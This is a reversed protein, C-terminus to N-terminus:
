PNQKVIESWVKKGNKNIYFLEYFGTYRKDESYIFRRGKSLGNVFGGYDVHKDFPIKIDGKKDIFGEIFYSGLMYGKEEIKLSVPALGESFDSFVYYKPEIVIAGTTDIFGWKEDIEVAAMGDSFKQARDFEKENIKNGHKNIFFCKDNEHVIAFGESFDSANTYDLTSIYSGLTNMFHIKGDKEITSIGDIFPTAEDLNPQVVWKGDKNIFGYYWDGPYLNGDYVVDSEGTDIDKHGINQIRVIALGDSFSYIASLQKGKPMELNKLDIAIEGKTTLYYFHGHDEVNLLGESFQAWQKNSNIVIEGNENLFGRKGGKQFFVLGNSYNDALFDFRATYVEKGSSDIFGLELNSKQIPWRFVEQSITEIRPIFLIIFLLYRRM